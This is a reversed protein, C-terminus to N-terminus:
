GLYESLLPQLKKRSQSLDAQSYYDTDGVPAKVEDKLAALGLGSQNMFEFLKRRLSPDVAHVALERTFEPATYANMVLLVDLKRAEAYDSLAAEIDEDKKFWDALPLLASSMGVKLRGMTYEKYDKRLIDRSSLAAVNFKELQLRDFLIKQRAGSVPMIRNVVAEDRETVRKAEPDLNVTDLLITGLALTAVNAPLPTGTALMIETVLTSASGVPAISRKATPYLGEDAHHDLIEEVKSAWAGQAASLKNHDILVLRSAANALLAGLDVDDLFVLDKIDIGADEFLWLAETRLNFDERPINMVPVNPLGDSAAGRSWALLIASAMSDLDSAENGIFARVPKGERAAESSAKLFVNLADSHLEM